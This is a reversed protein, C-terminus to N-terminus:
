AGIINTVEKKLKPINMELISWILDNSIVDYGHIIRNRVDIIRRSNSIIISSDQKLIRNM